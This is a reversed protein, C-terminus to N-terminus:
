AVLSFQEFGFPNFYIFNSHIYQYIIIQTERARKAIFHTVNVWDLWNSMDSCWVDRSALCMNYRDYGKRLDRAPQFRCSWSVQRGFCGNWCTVLNIGFEPLYRKDKHIEPLQSFIDYTNCTKKASEFSCRRSLVFLFDYCRLQLFHICFTSHSHTHIQIWLDTCRTVFSYWTVCTGYRLAGLIRKGISICYEKQASGAVMVLCLFGIFRPFQKEKLGRHIRASNPFDAQSIAFVNTLHHSQFLHHYVIWQYMIVISVFSQYPSM